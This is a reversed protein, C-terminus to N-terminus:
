QENSIAIKNSDCYNRKLVTKWDELQFGLEMEKKDVFLSTHKSCGFSASESCLYKDNYDSLSVLYQVAEYYSVDRKGSLQYVGVSFNSALNVLFTTVAELDIPSFLLNDFVYTIQRDRIANLFQLLRDWQSSIVKTMRVIAIDADLTQLRSEMEAKSQGYVNTPSFESHHTVHASQGDFICNTSFVIWRSVNLGNVLDVVSDCNIKKALDPQSDCDSINTMAAFVLAIDFSESKLETCLEDVSELDLKYDVTGRRGITTLLWDDCENARKIFARALASNAGIVLIRM